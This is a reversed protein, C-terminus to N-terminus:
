LDDDMELDPLNPENLNFNSIPENNNSDDELLEIDNEQASRETREDLRDPQGAPASIDRLLHDVTNRPTWLVVAMSPKM